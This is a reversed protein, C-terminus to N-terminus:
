HEAGGIYLDPMGWYAERGPDLLRGDDGPNLYRLYYWCSGAWQPMTNTERVAEVWSPGSQEDRSVEGTALNLRVYLWERAKALPSEGTGAPQFSEVAPLELPLSHATVPVAHWTEGDKVFTVPTQPLFERLPSDPAAALKAYDDARLWLIPF